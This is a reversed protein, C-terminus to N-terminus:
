GEEMVIIECGPPLGDSVQEKVAAIRAPDTVRRTRAGPPFVYERTGRYVTFPSLDRANKGTLEYVILTPTGSSHNLEIFSVATDQDPSLSLVQRNTSQGAYRGKSLLNVKDGRFVLVPHEPSGIAPLHHLAETLMDTHSLIEDYLAPLRQGVQENIGTWAQARDDKAGDIWRQAEPTLPSDKNLPEAGTHIIPRLSIPLRGPNEGKAIDSLYRRVAATATHNFETRVVADSLGSPLKGTVSEVSFAHNIAIHSHTTYVALATVHSESLGAVAARVAEPDNPDIGNRVAWAHLTHDPVGTSDASPPTHEPLQGTPSEGDTIHGDTIHGDSLQQWVEHVLENLEPVDARNHQAETFGAPDTALRQYHTQHPLPIDPRPGSEGHWDLVRRYFEVPDPRDGIRGGALPGSGAIQAGLAMEYLSHDRGPLMWAMLAKLFQEREAPDLGLIETATLMKTTTLSIGDVTPLGANEASETWASKTEHITGGERWPLKAGPDDVPQDMHPQVFDRSLRGLPVGMDAYDQATLARDAADERDTRGKQSQTSSILNKVPHDSVLQVNGTAVPDRDFLRRDAAGLLKRGLPGTELVRLARRLPSNLQQHRTRLNDLHVGADQLRSWDGADAVRIVANKFVEPRDYNLYFANYLATVTERVDGDELLTDVSVHTGVNGANAEKDSLFVSDVRHEFDAQSEEPLKDNLTRLATRLDRVAQRAQDLVAPDNFDAAGVQKEFHTSEEMSGERDIRRLQKFGWPARKEDGALRLVDGTEDFTSSPPRLPDGPPLDRTEVHGDGTPHALKWTGDGTLHGSGTGDDVLEPRPGYPTDVQHATAVVTGRRDMWVPADSAVVDHGTARALAAAGDAAECGYLRIPVDKPVGALHDALDAFPVRMGDVVIGDGDAHAFITFTGAEPDASAAMRRLIDGNTDLTSVVLGSDTADLRIQASRDGDTVDLVLHDGEGAVSTIHAPRDAAPATLEGDHGAGAVPRHGAQAPLDQERHGDAPHDAAPREPAPARDGEGHGTGQGVRDPQRGLSLPDDASGRGGERLVGPDGHSDRPQDPNTEWAAAKNAENHVEAHSADPHAQRYRAAALTHDLLVLDLPESRGTSLRQWAAAVAPDEELPTPRGDGLDHPTLFLHERIQTIEEPTYGTGGDERPVPALHEAIAEIDQPNRRVSDYVRRAWGSQEPLDLPDAPRHDDALSPDVRHTPPVAHSLRDAPDTPDTPGHGGSGDNSGDSGSGTGRESGGGGSDSRGGRNGSGNTGRPEGGTLGSLDHARSGATTVAAAQAAGAGVLERQLQAEALATLTQDTEAKGGLQAEFRQAQDSLTQAQQHEAAYQQQYRELDNQGHFTADQTINGPVATPDVATSAPNEQGIGSAARTHASSLDGPVGQPRMFDNLPQVGRFSGDANFVAQHGPPIPNDGPYTHVEQLHGSNYDYVAAENPGLPRNFGAPVTQGDGSVVVVPDKGTQFVHAAGPDVPRSAPDYVPTATSDPAPANRVTTGQHQGNPDYLESVGSPLPGKGGGHSVVGAPEYSGGSDSPSYTVSGTANGGRDLTQARVAQYDTSVGNKDRVSLTGSNGDFSGRGVLAPQESPDAGTRYVTLGDAGNPDIAGGYRHVVLNDGGTTDITMRPTTIHDKALDKAGHIGGLFMGQMFSKQWNAFPGQEGGAWNKVGLDQIGQDTYYTAVNGGVMSLGGYVAGAGKRVFPNNAFSSDLLPKAIGPMALDFRKAFQGGLGPLAFLGGLLIGHELDHLLLSGDYDGWGRHGEVMQVTESILDPLLTFALAEILGKILMRLASQAAWREAAMQAAVLPTDLGFTAAIEALAEIIQIYLIVAVVNESIKTAEIQLAAADAYNAMAACQGALQELIGDGKVYKSWYNNFEDCSVSTIASNVKSVVDNGYGAANLLSDCAEQWATGCRRLADEDGQPWSLGLMEQAWGWPPVFQPVSM